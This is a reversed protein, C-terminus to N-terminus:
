GPTDHLARLRDLRNGVDEAYNIQHSDIDVEECIELLLDEVQQAETRHETQFVQSFFSCSESYIIIRHISLYFM